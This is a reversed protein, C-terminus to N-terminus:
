DNTTPSARASPTLCVFIWVTTTQLPIVVVKGDADVHDSEAHCWGGDIRTLEYRGAAISLLPATGDAQSKLARTWGAFEGNLATLEFRTSGIPVSCADAWDVTAPPTGMCDRIVVLLAGSTAVSATPEPTATVVIPTTQPAQVIIVPQNANHDNHNNGPGRNDNEEKAAKTAKDEKKGKGKGHGSNSHDDEGRKALAIDAGNLSLSIPAAVVSAVAVLVLIM